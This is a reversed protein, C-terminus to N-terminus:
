TNGGDCEHIVATFSIVLRGGFMQKAQEVLQEDTVMTVFGGANTNEAENAKIMRGKM